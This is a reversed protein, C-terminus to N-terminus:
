PDKSFAPFIEGWTASYSELHLVELAVDHDPGDEALIFGFAPGAFDVVALYNVRGKM